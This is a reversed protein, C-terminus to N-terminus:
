TSGFSALQGMCEQRFADMFPQLQDLKQVSKGHKEPIDDAASHVHRTSIRRVPDYTAYGRIRYYLQTDLINGPGLFLNQSLPIALVSSPLRVSFAVSGEFYWSETVIKHETAVLSTDPDEEM